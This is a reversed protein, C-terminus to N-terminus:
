SRGTSSRAPTGSRSSRARRRPTARDGPARAPDGRATRGQRQRVGALTAVVHSAARPRPRARRRGDLARLARDRGACRRRSTASASPSARTCGCCTRPACRTTPSSGARPRHARPRQARARGHARLADALSEWVTPSSTPRRRALQRRPRSRAATSRPRTPSRRASARATPRSARRLAVGERARRRPPLPRRPARGRRRRRRRARARAARGGRRPARAPRPVAPRRLRRRARGPPPLAPPRRGRGHLVADAPGLDDSTPRPCTTASCTTSSARTSARRRAGVRPPDARPRGARAPRAAGAGRERHQRAARDLRVGGRAAPRAPVAPQRGLARRRARRHAAAAARGRDGAEALALSTPRRRAARARPARM